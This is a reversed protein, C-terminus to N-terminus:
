KLCGFADPHVKVSTSDLGYERVNQWEKDALAAYIRELVGNQTWRSFRVYIVHWHGFEKPLARWSCGNKCRYLIADLFVRNPIKVNGRQKPLLKEIRRYQNEKLKM